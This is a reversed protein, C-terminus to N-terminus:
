RASRTKGKKETDAKRATDLADIAEAIERAVDADLDGVLVPAYPVPEGKDDAFDWGVIHAKLVDLRYEAWNGTTVRTEQTASDFEWRVLKGQLAAEEAASLRQRVRVENGGRLKITDFAGRDVFVTM